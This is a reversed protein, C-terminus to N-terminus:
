RPWTGQEVIPDQDVSRMTPFIRIVCRAAVVDWMGTPAAVDSIAQALSTAQRLDVGESGPDEMVVHQTRQARDWWVMRRSPHVRIHPDVILGIARDDLQMWTKLTDIDTRSPFLGHGIHSHVWGVMAGLRSAAEQDPMATIASRMVEICTVDFACGISSSVLQPPFVAASVRIQWDKRLGLLVGGREDRSDSLYTLLTAALGRELLVKSPQEVPNEATIEANM